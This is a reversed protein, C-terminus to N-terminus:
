SEWIHARSATQIYKITVIATSRSTINLGLSLERKLEDELGLATILKAKGEGETAM